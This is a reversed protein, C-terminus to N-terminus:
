VQVEAGNVKAVQLPRGSSLQLDKSWLYQGVIAVETFLLPLYTLVLAAAMMEAPLYNQSKVAFFLGLCIAIRVASGIFYGWVTPLVGSPGLVKLPLIALMSVGWVVVVALVMSRHVGDASEFFMDLLAIGGVLCAIAALTLCALTKVAPFPHDNVSHNM